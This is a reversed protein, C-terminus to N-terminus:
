HDVNDLAWISGSEEAMTVVLKHQTFSLGVFPISRLIMLRPSNFKSIQFPQGVPKGVDPDFRIGWINFFGGPGSVFYITRGDPSWRPKDDWHRGDTIRTWPGGSAPVVYLASEPNPSNVVAEFVIWRNGPSLHPQYLTYAPNSTVKKTTTQAHPAIPFPILWIENGDANSLWKGDSSWDYVVSQTVGTIPVEEHSKNSWLM